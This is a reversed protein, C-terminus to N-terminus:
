VFLAEFGFSNVKCHEGKKNFVSHILGHKEKRRLERKLAYAALLFALAVFFGFTQIPLPIWYGTLDEILHPITPYM